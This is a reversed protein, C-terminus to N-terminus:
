SDRGHYAAEVRDLDAATVHRGTPDLKRASRRLRALDAAPRRCFRRARARDFDIFCVEPMHAADARYLLINNLNLDPHRTGSDHLRRTAAGIRQLAAAREAASVTSQAWEWFTHAGPVYRTVLWGKYCGPALWFVRAGSVEAVPVGQLRLMETVFLERFPRPRWGFYTDRLVWAPLGGRRYPRVVVDHGDARMVRAGGRGGALDRAVLGDQPGTATRLLPVMWSRLDSRVLATARQDRIWEFGPPAIM